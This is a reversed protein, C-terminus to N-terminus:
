FITKIGRICKGKSRQFSFFRFREREKEVTTPRQSQSGPGSVYESTNPRWDAQSLNASTLKMNVGHVNMSMVYNKM